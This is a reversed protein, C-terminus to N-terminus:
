SKSKMAVWSQMRRRGLISGLVSAKNHSLVVFGEFELSKEIQGIIIDHPHLKYCNLYPRVKRDISRAFFGFLSNTDVAVALYGNVKTVRCLERLMEWPSFTHDLVNNCIVLEFSETDFPLQEANAQIYVTEKQISNVLSDAFRNKTNVGMMPLSDVGIKLLAMPFLWLLGVGMPGVGVDLLTSPYKEILSILRWALDLHEGIEYM